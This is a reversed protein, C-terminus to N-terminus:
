TRLSTEKRLLQRRLMVGVSCLFTSLLIFFYLLCYDKSECLFSMIYGTRKRQVGYAKGIDVDEPILVLLLDDDTDPPWIGPHGMDPFFADYPSWSDPAAV